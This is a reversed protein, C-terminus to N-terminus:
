GNETALATIGDRAFAARVKEEDFGNRGRMQAIAEEISAMVETNARFRSLLMLGAVVGRMIGVRFGSGELVVFMQELMPALAASGSVLRKRAADGPPKADEATVSVYLLPQGVKAHLAKAQSVVDDVGAVTTNTWRVGFV